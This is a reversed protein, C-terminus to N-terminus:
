HLPVGAAELAETATTILQLHRVTEPPADAPLPTMVYDGAYSRLVFIALKRLQPDAGQIMRALEPIAELAEFKMDALAIAAGARTSPNGERLATLLSPAAIRGINALATAVATSEGAGESYRQPDASGGATTLVHMLGAVAAPSDKGARALAALAAFRCKRDSDRLSELLEPVALAAAEDCSGLAWIAMLRRRAYPHRLNQSLERIAAPGIDRLIQSYAEACHEWDGEDLNLELIREVTERPDPGIRALTEVITRVDSGDVDTENTAALLSMLPGSAARTGIEHLIGIAAARIEADNTELETIIWHEVVPSKRGVDILAYRAAERSEEEALAAILPLKIQQPFFHGVKGLASGAEDRVRSDRDLLANLIAAVGQTTPSVAEGLARVAAQRVAPEQDAAAAILGAQVEHGRAGTQRLSHAAAVKSESDAAGLIALLPKTAFQASPGIKGLAVVAQLRVHHDADQLLEILRPVSSAAERGASGLAITAEARTAADSDSLFPALKPVVELGIWRRDSRATFTEEDPIAYAATAMPFDTEPWEGELSNQEWDIALKGLSRIALRRIDPDPDALLPLIPIASDRASAFRLEGEGIWELVRKRTAPDPASLMGRLYDPGLAQLIYASERLAPRRAFADLLAARVEPFARLSALSYAASARVDHAPDELGPLLAERVEKIRPNDSVGLARAAASRVLADSDRMAQLLQPVAEKNASGLDGLERVARVRVNPDPNSTMAALRSVIEPVVAAIRALTHENIQYQPPDTPITLSDLVAKANGQSMPEIRMIADAAETRVYPNQNSLLKLLIPVAKADGIAALAGIASRQYQVNESEVFRLLRSVAPQAAPGIRELSQMAIRTRDRDDGDLLATLRDVVAATRSPDHKLLAAVAGILLNSRGEAVAEALVPVIGATAPALEDLTLAAALRVELDSDHLAAKITPLIWKAQPGLLLLNDAGRRRVSLNSHDLQEAVLTPAPVPRHSWGMAGTALFQGFAPTTAYAFLVALRVAVANILCFTKVRSRM